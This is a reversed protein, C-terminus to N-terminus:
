AGPPVTRNDARWVARIPVLTAYLLLTQTGVLILTASRDLGFSNRFILTYAHSQFWALAAVAAVAILIRVDEARELTALETEIRRRMEPAVPEVAATM